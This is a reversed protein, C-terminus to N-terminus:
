NKKNIKIKNNKFYKIKKELEINFDSKPKWGLKELKNSNILYRFDNFNRDKIYEIHEDSNDTNKLKKIILQALSKIDLYYDNSINYIENIIGKDHILILADIVDQVYIFHRETNGNGQIYCKDNNLLNYIFAPIVKEPYQRPGYMNNCRIIMIPLKFSTYYSAALLEASAKTASYPNTPKLLSTETKETENKKVEGYVEDTSMHIFKKIKGYERCCELLTHTGVINDTTFQISNFFSNDVHTQAALHFVSEISYENLIFTVMESNCINGKIFKYKGEINETNDFSCYDLKDINVVFNGKEILSDVLHSACFGSGGTVLINM